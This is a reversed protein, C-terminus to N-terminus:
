AAARMPTSARRGPLDPRVRRVPRRQAVPVLVPAAASGSLLAAIYGARPAITIAMAWLSVALVGSFFLFGLLVM